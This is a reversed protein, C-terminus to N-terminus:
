RTRRRKRPKPNSVPRGVRQDNAKPAAHLNSFYRQALERVSPPFREHSLETLTEAILAHLLDVHKASLQPVRQRFGNPIGLLKTKIVGSIFTIAETISAIPILQNKKEEIEMELLERKRRDLLAAEAMRDLTGDKSQWGAAIERMHRGYEALWQQLDAGPTLVGKAILKSIAPQSEELITALEQQTPKKKSAGAM